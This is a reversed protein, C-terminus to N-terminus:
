LVNKSSYIMITGIILDPHECVDGPNYCHKSEYMQENAISAKNRFLVRGCKDPGEDDIGFWCGWTGWDIILLLYRLPYKRNKHFAMFCLWDPAQLLAQIVELLRVINVFLIFTRKFTEGASTPQTGSDPQEDGAAGPQDGQQEAGAAGPMNAGPFGPPMAGPPFQMPGAGGAPPQFPPMWFPYGPFPPIM